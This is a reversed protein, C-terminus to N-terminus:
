RGGSPIVRNRTLAPHAASGRRVAHASNLRAQCYKRASLVSDACVGSTVRVLTYVGMSHTCILLSAHSLSPGM